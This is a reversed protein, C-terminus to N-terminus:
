QIAAIKVQKGVRVTLKVPLEELRYSHHTRVIAGVRVSNQRLKRGADSISEALGIRVLLRDLRIDLEGGASIESVSVAIEEVDGPVEDRQFQKGWDDGAKAAAEASHFDAVIRRALDKKAQMPHMERKIREIEAVQV